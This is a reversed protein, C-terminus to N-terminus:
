QLRPTSLSTSMPCHLPSSSVYIRPLPFPVTGAPQRRRTPSPPPTSPSSTTTDGMLRRRYRAVLAELIVLQSLLAVLAELICFDDDISWTHQFSASPRQAGKAEVEARAWREGAKRGWPMWWQDVMSRPRQIANHEVLHTRAAPPLINGVTCSSSSVTTNCNCRSVARAPSRVSQEGLVRHEQRRRRSYSPPLTEISSLNPSPPLALSSPDAVTPTGRTHSPPSHRSAHRRRRKYPNSAHIPSHHAVLLSVCEPTPLM